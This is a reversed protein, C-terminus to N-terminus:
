RGLERELWHQVLLRQSSLDDIGARWPNAVTRHRSWRQWTKGDMQQDSIGPIGKGDKRILAPHFYVMDLQTDPYGSEIKYAELVEQPQYTDPVSRGRILLWLAGNEKITEWPVGLSNLHAEDGEPLRFDRRV